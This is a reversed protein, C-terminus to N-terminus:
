PAGVTSTLERLFERVRRPSAFSVADLGAKRAQTSLYSGPECTVVARVGLEAIARMTSWWEVPRTLQHLLGWRLRDPDTTAEATVNLIVPTAAREIRLQRVLSQWDALVARMLPSHFAHSTRVRGARRAGSRLAIDACMAVAQEDGSVVHEDPGNQAAIVVRGARACADCCAQVTARGLGTILAMQGSGPAAAMLRGRECVLPVALDAGLAGSACMASIEGASHGAVLTVPVGLGSLYLYSAIGVAFMAPQTYRTDSLKGPPGSACLRGIDCGAAASLAGLVPRMAPVERFLWTGM